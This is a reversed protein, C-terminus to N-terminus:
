MIRMSVLGLEEKHPTEVGYKPVSGTFSNAHKLKRVGTIQTMPHRKGTSDKQNEKEVHSTQHEDNEDIKFTPIDLEQQKDSFVPFEDATLHLAQIIKRNVFWKQKKKSIYTLYDIHTM